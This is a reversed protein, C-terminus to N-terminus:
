KYIFIDTYKTDYRPSIMLNNSADYGAWIATYVRYSGYPAVWLLAIDGFDVLTEGGAPVWIKKPPVDFFYPFKNNAWKTRTLDEFSLGCWVYSDIDSKNRVYYRVTIQDYLTLPIQLGLVSPRMAWGTVDLYTIEASFSKANQQPVAYSIEDGPQPSTSGENMEESPIEKDKPKFFYSGILFGAGAGVFTTSLKKMYEKKKPDSIESGILYGVAGGSATLLITPLNNLFNEVTPLTSSAMDFATNVDEFGRLTEYGLLGALAISYKNQWIKSKWTTESVKAVAKTGTLDSRVVVGAGKKTIEKLLAPTITRTIPIFIAGVM